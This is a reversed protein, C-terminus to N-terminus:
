YQEQFGRGSLFDGRSSRLSESYRIVTVGTIVGALDMGVLVEIPGSYGIEVPPVDGTFFAYAILAEQGTAPDTRYARFVPPEGERGTFRDAGPVVRALADRWEAPAQQARARGPVLLLLLLLASVSAWTWRAKAAVADKRQSDSQIGGRSR